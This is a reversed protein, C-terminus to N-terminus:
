IKLNDNIQSILELSKDIEEVNKYAKTLLDRLAERLKKIEENDKLIEENMRIEM